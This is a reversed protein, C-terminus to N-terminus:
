TAREALGIPPAASPRPLPAYASATRTARGELAGDSPPAGIALLAVVATGGERPSEVRLTGDLAEARDALGRLGSGREIEAGGIGDDRVEVRLQGGVCRVSVTAATARAYKAVNTLCEAVIYYATAEVQDPLREAPVDVLEVPLPARAALAELAPTLGRDSLVAPHIGRALERLEELTLALEEAAQALIRGVDPRDGLKSEALRLLLALTVLRQQAGDHLNREIRRREADSAQVIRTRSAALEERAEANAIAQAVLAAFDGLRLEAGAPLPEDGTRAITVAGWQRGAVEIPAAVASRIGLERLIPATAEGGLEDADARAPRGSRLAHKTATAQDLDLRLGAPVPRTPADSWGAVVELGSGDSRILTAVHAGFLLGVESAVRAFLEANPAGAAVLTAVRRLAAQEEALARHSAERERLTREHRRREVEAGARAAFIRLAAVRHPDPHLPRAALVGVHGLHTGDSGHLAVALYSDLGLEAILEDEPFREALRDSHCVVGAAAVDACPTGALDYDPPTVLTGKAWCALYRARAPTGRVLEAVFAVEAEFARALQKVLGQFFADGVAGATGQAIFWLLDEGAGDPRPDQQFSGADSM